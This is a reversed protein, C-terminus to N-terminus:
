KMKNIIHRRVLKMLTASQSPSVDSNIAISIGRPKEILLLQNGKGTVFACRSDKMMFSYGYKEKSNIRFQPSICKDVYQSSLLRKGKYLGKNAYVIALKLMDETKLFLGSGGLFHNYPCRTTDYESIGLPKLINENIYDDTSIGTVEEIIRSLLYFNSNSYCFFEEPMYELPRNMILSLYDDTNHTHRDAEFLFGKDIGTVNMLLHKIKVYPMKKDKYPVKLYDIIRDELSILSKDYLLGIASTTFAKSISYQRNLIKEDQSSYSDIIENKRAIIINKINWNLKNNEEIFSNLATTMKVKQKKSFSMM